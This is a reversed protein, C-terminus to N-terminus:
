LSDVYLPSLDPVSNPDLVDPDIGEALSYRWLTVDQGRHTSDEEDCALVGLMHLAQLQRDVTARPKALRKRVDRTLTGPFTAVDDLIALRLPPMSDRACRIALRLAARRDLGVAVAGRVVQTLQKAFRTPMEPAHADIVDGRYDYDVGTRALTVVDAAALIRDREEDTVTITQDPTIGDLVGAVAEALEARMTEEDGTNRISRQGAAMRGTTSDMRLTVFRDGMSSIVDHARDWATTVAGVITIRGEWTLTRGGDAGVNRQWRGDHIERLAALVTGRTDRNMSLLSTVDKIVLLGHPGLVRLLGGTADKAKDRKPSGSLLAGDSTITSTVIAGAGALAQVTETKANGSGSVLLLWLPVGDLREVAAAALTVTIADLDYEAGLWKRFATHADALTCRAHKRAQREATRRVQRSETSTQPAQYTDRCGALARAITAAGYTQEGRRADWKARMLGSQRFLRDMRDADCGTWFALLNCLALDAASDDGGHQSTDGQWLSSFRSGNAARHARELLAADDDTVPAHPRTERPEHGNGDPPFIRAHLAALAASRDEITRPTGEVHQGTVTFYRREAYMEIQGKKRRGPPLVGYVYVHLGRGSPSIETYSDLERVIALAWPEITGAEADRCKDLDIGVTGEGLVIGVGDAKGDTYADHAETFTGWTHPDDVAALPPPRWPQSPV